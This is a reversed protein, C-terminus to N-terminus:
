AEEGSSDSAQDVRPPAAGEVEWWELDRTPETACVVQGLHDILEPLGERTAASITFFPIDESSSTPACGRRM